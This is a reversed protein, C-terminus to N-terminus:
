LTENCLEIHRQTYAELRARQAETLQQCAWGWHVSVWDGPRAGEVFGDGEVRRTVTERQPPALALRGDALVLPQVSVELTDGGVRVVQGWRIRCQEMTEFPRELTGTRTLGTRPYIELVHFSHHPRAGAPVKGALWKWERLAVRSRFRKEIGEYLLGLDIRDLLENGIWYAEVVRVDFPDGIGNARAILQLYPYAGDFQRELQLLGPDATGSRTYDLLGRHDDGGCYGLLNPRFAYRAFLLPGRPDIAALTV